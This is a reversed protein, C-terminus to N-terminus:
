PSCPPRNTTKSILTNVHKPSLVSEFGPSVIIEEVGKPPPCFTIGAGLALVRLWLAEILSHRGGCFLRRNRAWPLLELGDLKLEITRDVM